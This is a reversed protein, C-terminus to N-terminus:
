YQKNVPIIYIIKGLEIVYLFTLLNVRVKLAIQQLPKIDDMTLVDRVQQTALVLVTQTIRMSVMEEALAHIEVCLGLHKRQQLIRFDEM